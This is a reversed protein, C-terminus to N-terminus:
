KSLLGIAGYDPLKQPPYGDIDGYVWCDGSRVCVDFDDDKTVILGPPQPPYDAPWDPVPSNWAGWSNIIFWVRYPWHSKTDDYGCTCMDHNWANRSRRHINGTPSSNWGASQGSHAAYGNFMADMLDEQSRVNTIRGVQNRNCLEQVDSPVGSRGWKIGYSADYKSLDGFDYRERALFGVDREFKSARAPSMGQGGHGRAGYTPETAGRKYWDFPQHRALIATARTIDRANRSGHSVCDGTTQRENFSKPDLKLAYGWLLARQGKGSDKINPEDFYQYPQSEMFEAKDRPSEIYGTLGQEYASLLSLPDNFEDAM